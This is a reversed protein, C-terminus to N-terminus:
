LKFDLSISKLLNQEAQKAQQKAKEQKEMLRKKRRDASGAARAGNGTRHPSTKVKKPLVSGASGAAGNASVTRSAASLPTTANRPSEEESDSDEGDSTNSLPPTLYQGNPNGGFPAAGAGGGSASAVGANAAAIVAAKSRETVLTSADAGTGIHAGVAGNSTATVMEDETAAWRPAEVAPPPAAAVRVPPAVGIPIKTNITLSGLSPHGGITVSATPIPTSVYSPAGSQGGPTPHAHNPSGGNVYSTVLPTGFALPMPAPPQPTYYPQGSSGNSPHRVHHSIPQQQHIAQLPSTGIGATSRPAVVVSGTGGTNVTSSWPSTGRNSGRPTQSPSTGAGVSGGGTTAIFSKGKRFSANAYDKEIQKQTEAALAMIKAELERLREEKQVRLLEMEAAQDATIPEGSADVSDDVVLYQSNPDVVGGGGSAVTQLAQPTGIPTIPLSGNMLGSNASGASNPSALGSLSLSGGMPYGTQNPQGRAAAEAQLRIQQMQTLNDAHLRSLSGERSNRGGNAPTGNASPASVNTLGAAPGKGSSLRRAVVPHLSSSGNGIMSAASPPGGPAATGNSSGATGVTGAGGATWTGGMASGPRHPSSTGSSHPSGVNSSAGSGNASGVAAGNANVNPSAQVSSPTGAAHNTNLSLAPRPPPKGAVSNPPVQPPSSPSSQPPNFVGSRGPKYGGPPIVIRDQSSASGPTGTGSNPSMGAAGAAAVNEVTQPTPLSNFSTKQRLRRAVADAIPNPTQSKNSVPATVIPTPKNHNSGPAPIPAGTGTGTGNPNPFSPLATIISPRRRGATNMGDLALMVRIHDDKDVLGDLM